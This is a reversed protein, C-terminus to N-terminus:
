DAYGFFANWGTKWKGADFVLEDWSRPLERRNSVSDMYGYVYGDAAHSVKGIGVTHYGNKRFQEVFTEPYGEPNTKMGSFRRQLAENTLDAVTRPYRGTLLAARSAGCTPVAVYHRNFVVGDAALKDINPTRAFTRGYCGLEPRLDDVLIFVVNLSRKTQAEMHGCVFLFLLIRGLMWIKPLRYM